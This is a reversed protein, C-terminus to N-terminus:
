RSELERNTKDVWRMLINEALRFVHPRYPMFARYVYRGGNPWGPVVTAIRRIFMQGQINKGNSKSGANEAIALGVRNTPVAYKITVLNPSKKSYGPTVSVTTRVRAWNYRNPKKKGERNMGSMPVSNSNIRSEIMKAIPVISSKMSTRLEDILSSDVSKLVRAVRAIDRADVEVRLDLSM